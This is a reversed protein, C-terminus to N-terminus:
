QIRRLESGHCHSEIQMEILVYDEVIKEKVRSGLPLDAQTQTM